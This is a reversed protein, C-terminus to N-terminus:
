KIWRRANLYSTPYLKGHQNHKRLAEYASIYLYAEVQDKKSLKDWAKQAQYKDMKYAYKEYFMDFSIEVTTKTVSINHSKTEKLFEGETYYLTYRRAAKEEIDFDADPAEFSFLRGSKYTVKVQCGLPRSTFEYTTM